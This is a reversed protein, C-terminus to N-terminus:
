HKFCISLLHHGLNAQEQQTPWSRTFISASLCPSSGYPDPSYLPGIRARTEESIHSYKLHLYPSTQRSAVSLTGEKTYRLEITNFSPYIELDVRVM